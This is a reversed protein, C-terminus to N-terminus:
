EIVYGEKRVARILRGRILPEIKRRISAVHVDIARSKGSGPRNWLRYALVERPVPTGRNFLLARLIRSEHVTLAASGAPLEVRGGDLTLVGWPFEMRRRMVGLVRGARLELEEPGWPEKMYDAAGSAFASRMLGAPGFAIVPILAGPPVGPQVGTLRPGRGVRPNLIEMAMDFHAAYLDVEDDPLPAPSDLFLFPSRSLSARIREM